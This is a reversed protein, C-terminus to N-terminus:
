MKASVTSIPFLKCLELTKPPVTQFCLRSIAKQVAKTTSDGCALHLKSTRHDAFNVGRSM